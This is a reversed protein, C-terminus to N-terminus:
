NVKRGSLLDPHEDLLNRMSILIEEPTTKPSEVAAYRAQALLGFEDVRTPLVGLLTALSALHEGQGRAIDRKVTEYNDTTFAIPRHEPRLMGDENYWSRGTTSSTFDFIDKTTGTPTTTCASVLVAYCGLTIGIVRTMMSPM